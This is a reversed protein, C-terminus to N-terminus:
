CNLHSQLHNFSERGMHFSIKKGNLKGGIESVQTHYRIRFSCRDLGGVLNFSERNVSSITVHRGPCRLRGKSTPPALM